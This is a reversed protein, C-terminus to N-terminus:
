FFFFSALRSSIYRNYVGGLWWVLSVQSFIAGPMQCCCKRWVQCKYWFVVLCKCRIVNMGSLSVVCRVVVHCKCRVVYVGSSSVQVHCLSCTLLVCRVVNSCSIIVRRVVSSCSVHRIVSSSSVIVSSFSVIVKMQHCQFMVCHCKPRVVVHCKRHCCSFLSTTITHKEEEYITFRLCYVIYTFLCYLWSQSQPSPSNQIPKFVLFLCMLHFQHIWLQWSGIWYSSNRDFTTINSLVVKLNFFNNLFVFCGLIKVEVIMSSLIKCLFLFFSFFWSM